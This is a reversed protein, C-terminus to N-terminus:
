KRCIEKALRQLSVIIKAELQHFDVHTKATYIIAAAFKSQSNRIEPIVKHKNLRYAERIQRKIKNRDVSNKFNKKPVTIAIKLEQADKHSSKVWLIRLPYENISSGTEFITELV